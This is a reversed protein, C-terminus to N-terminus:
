PAPPYKAQATPDYGYVWELRRALMGRGLVLAAYAGWNFPWGMHFRRSNGRALNVVARCRDQRIETYRALGAAMDTAGALAAGLVWADELALCAGQAMFPLTPHASDGLLVVNGKVWRQAVSRAHLAWTHVREAQAIVEGLAGGFNEFRMRFDLPDGQESWSENRWDRREEVAVVNMLKGQRLPYSVVHARHGLSVSARPDSPHDWPVVARWAVHGTFSPAVPGDVYSRWLSRVGDAAVILDAQVAGPSVAHGLSLEVGADKACRVLLALLDARHMYWTPGGLPARIEAVAAGSPGDRFVTGRSLSATDPVGAGVAGLAKLVRQGNVSVQLGAGVETLAPAQEHVTVHAGRQALAAATAVGGIGGGIVAVNLGTLEM